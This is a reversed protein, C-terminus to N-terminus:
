QNFGRRRVFFALGSGLSLLSAGLGAAAGRSFSTSAGGVGANVAGAPIQVQASKPTTTTGLVQGGTNTTTGGGGEQGGGGPCGHSIVLKPTNNGNLDGVFTASASLTSFDGSFGTQVFHFAGNGEQTMASTQGNITITASDAGAATFVWLVDGPSPTDGSCQVTDFQGDSVGNGTWNATGDAYGIGSFAVMAAVSVGAAALKIKNKVM